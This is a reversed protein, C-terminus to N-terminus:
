ILREQPLTKVLEGKQNETVVLNNKNNQLYRAIELNRITSLQSYNTAAKIQQIVAESLPINLEKELANLDIQIIKELQEGFPTDPKAALERELESIRIESDNSYHNTPKNILKQIFQITESLSSETSLELGLKTIIQTIIKREQESLQGVLNNLQQELQGKAKESQDLDNTIQQNQITLKEVTQKTTDYDTHSCGVQDLLAQLEPDSVKGELKTHIRDYEGSKTQLTSYNTHHNVNPCHALGCPTGGGCTAHANSDAILQTLTKGNM